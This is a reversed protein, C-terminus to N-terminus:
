LFEFQQFLSRYFHFSYFIFIHHKKEHNIKQCFNESYLEDDDIYSGGYTVSDGLFYIKNYTNNISSGIRFGNSDITVNKNKDLEVITKECLLESARDIYDRYSETLEWNVFKIWSIMKKWESKLIRNANELARTKTTFEEKLQLIKSEM